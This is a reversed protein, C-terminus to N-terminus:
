ENASTDSYNVRIEFNIKVDTQIGFNLYGVQELGKEILMHQIVPLTLDRPAASHWQSVGLPLRPYSVVCIVGHLGTRRFHRLLLCRHLYSPPSGITPRLVDWSALHSLDCQKNLSSDHM